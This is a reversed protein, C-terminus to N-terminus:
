PLAEKSGLDLLRWFHDESGTLVKGDGGRVRLYLRVGTPGEGAGGGQGGGGRPLALKQLESLAHLAARPQTPDMALMYEWHGGNQLRHLYIFAVPRLPTASGAGSSTAASTSGAGAGEPGSAGARFGSGSGPQPGPGLPLQGRLVAGSGCSNPSDAAASCQSTPLSPSMIGADGDLEVRLQMYQFGQVSCPRNVGLDETQACRGLSGGRRTAQVEKRGPEVAIVESIGQLLDVQERYLAAANKGCSPQPQHSPPEEADDSGGDHGAPCGSGSAGADSGAASASGTCLQPKAIHSCAAGQTLAPEAAGAAGHTSAPASPAAGAPDPAQRAAQVLVKVWAIWASQVRGALVAKAQVGAHSFAQHKGVHASILLPLVRTIADAQM